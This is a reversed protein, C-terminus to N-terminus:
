SNRRRKKHIWRVIREIYSETSDGELHDIHDVAFSFEDMLENYRQFTETLVKIDGTEWYSGEDLMEFDEFYNKGLYRFLNIILRHTEVGAFQTKASLMYIFKEDPHGSAPGFAELSVPSSMRRNSLFTLFITECQDPTFAIGYFRDDPVDSEPPGEPFAEDFVLYKWDNVQAVDKVDQIMRHLSAGERFRGSYHISLGM